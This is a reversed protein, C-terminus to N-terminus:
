STASSPKGVGASNKQQTSQEASSMLFRMVGFGILAAAGAVLTPRRRAFDQFERMLEGTECSAVHRAFGAFESSAQRILSASGSRGGHELEDAGKDAALALAKIFDVAAKKRENALDTVAHRAGAAFRQAEQKVAEAKEEASQVEEKPGGEKPGGEPESARSTNM